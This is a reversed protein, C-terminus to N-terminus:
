EEDSIDVDSDCDDCTFYSRKMAVCALHFKRQCTNCNISNLKTWKKPKERDCNKAPCGDVSEDSSSSIKKKKTRKTKKGLADDKGTTKTRKAKKGKKKEGTQKAQKEAKKDAKAQADAKSEPSTLIVSKMAKRGRKSKQQEPGFHVPGIDILTRKLSSLSTDASTARAKSTSVPRRLSLNKNRKMFGYYWDNTAKQETEWGTPHAIKEMVAYEYATKRINNITLGYNLKLCLIIYQALAKEQVPTFLQFFFCCNTYESM